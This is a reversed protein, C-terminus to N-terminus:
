LLLVCKTPKVHNLLARPFRGVHTRVTKTSDTVKLCDSEPCAFHVSAVETNEDGPRKSPTVRVEACASHM